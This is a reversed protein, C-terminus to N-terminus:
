KLHTEIRLKRDLVTLIIIITKIKIIIINLLDVAVMVWILPNIM